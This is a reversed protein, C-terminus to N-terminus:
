NGHGDCVGFLHLASREQVNPGLVFADQNEKNPQFPRFGVRTAFAFKKVINKPKIPNPSTVTIEPKANTRISSPLQSYPTPQKVVKSAAM